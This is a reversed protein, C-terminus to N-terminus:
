HPPRNERTNEPGPEFDFTMAPETDGQFDILVADVYSLAAVFGDGVAPGAGRLRATPHAELFADLTFSETRIPGEHWAGVRADWRQWTEPELCESRAECQDPIAGFLEAVISLNQARPDFVLFHEGREDGDVDILLWVKPVSRFVGSWSVFTSYELRTLDALRNLGYREFNAHAVGYQTLVLELSGSGLPPTQPGTVLDIRPPEPANPPLAILLLGQLDDPQVVVIREEQSSAGVSGFMAIAALAALWFYLHRSRM